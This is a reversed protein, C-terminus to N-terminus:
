PFSVNLNFEKVIYNKNGYSNYRACTRQAKEEKSYISKIIDDGLADSGYGDILEQAIAEVTVDSQCVAYLKM